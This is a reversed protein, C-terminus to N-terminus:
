LTCRGPYVCRACGYAQERLLGRIRRVARPYQRKGLPFWLEEVDVGSDRLARIQDRVFIGRAPAAEDPTLNSVVLVRVPALTGM